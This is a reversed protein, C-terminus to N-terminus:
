FASDGLAGGRRGCELEYKAPEGRMWEDEGGGWRGM